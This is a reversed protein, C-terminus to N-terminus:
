YYEIEISVAGDTTLVFVSIVGVLNILIDWLILLGIYTTWLMDYFLYNDSKMIKFKLILVYAMVVHGHDLSIDLCKNSWVIKNNIEFWNGNKQM